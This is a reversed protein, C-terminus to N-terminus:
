GAQNEKYDVKGRGRGTKRVGVTRKEERRKEVRRDRYRTDYV